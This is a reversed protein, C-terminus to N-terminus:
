KGLIKNKVEEVSEKPPNNIVSQISGGGDNEWRPMLHVHVHDVEQGSARGQNIGITVGNPALRNALMQNVHKVAIFLLAVEPDSLERITPAHEKPIVLTHGMTRPHVDLFAIAHDNEYIVQAAIEKNAIKCFLCDM